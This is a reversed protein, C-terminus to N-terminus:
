AYLLLWYVIFNKNVTVNWGKFNLPRFQPNTQSKFGVREPMLGCGVVVGKGRYFVLQMKCLMESVTFFDFFFQTTLYSCKYKYGFLKM